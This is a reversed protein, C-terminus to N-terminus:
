GQRWPLGANKWGGVSRHQEPDHPGEFGDVVNYAPGLGAATLAEAAARSRVGSRCLLYVPRQPTLGAARVEDVFTENLAGDPYRSWEVFAVERGAAALDPVGVYTWEAHTRVDVLLADDPGTAAAFAEQPTVDGAYSM